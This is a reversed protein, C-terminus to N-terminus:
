GGRILISIITVIIGLFTGAALIVSWKVNSALQEIKTEIIALRSIVGRSSSNGYMATEMREVRDRLDVIAAELQTLKIMFEPPDRQRDTM